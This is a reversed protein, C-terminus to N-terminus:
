CFNIKLKDNIEAETSGDLIYLKGSKEKAIGLKNALSGFAHADLKVTLGLQYKIQKQIKNAILQIEYQGISL